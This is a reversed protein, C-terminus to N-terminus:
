QSDGQNRIKARFRREDRDCEALFRRIAPELVNDVYETDYPVRKVFIKLGEPVRSDYGVFDCWERGNIWMQMQIQDYYDEPVEETDIIKYLHNASRLCKVEVNGLEGTKMDTALGDPSAGCRLEPHLMLPAEEVIVKQQMQYLAIAYVENVMGWKMDNTVFGDEDARMGTMREAVTEQRLKKRKETEPIDMKAKELLEFRDMGLLKEYQPLAKVKADIRPVDMIARVAAFVATDTINIITDKVRSGTLKGLRAKFWEESRQPADVVIPKPRNNM